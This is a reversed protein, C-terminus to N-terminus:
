EEVLGDKRWVSWAQQEVGSLKWERASWNREKGVRVPEVRRILNGM